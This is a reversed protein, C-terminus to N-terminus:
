KPLWGREDIDEGSGNAKGGNLSAAALEAAAEAASAEAAAHMICDDADASTSSISSPDFSVRPRSSSSSTAGERERIHRLREEASLSASPAANSAEAAAAAAASAAAAAAAAAASAAAGAPLKTVAPTPTPARPALMVINDRHALEDPGHYGLVAEATHQGGHSGSHNSARRNNSNNNNNNGGSGSASGSRGGGGGGAGEGGDGGGDGSTSAGGGSGLGIGGGNGGGGYRAAAVLARLEASSYNVLGRAIEAGDVAAVLLVAEQADFDGEAEVVGAAFLSAGRERVARVAGADLLLRGKVPVSTIWRKRGRSPHPISHFVTGGAAPDGAIVARIAEPRVAHLVATSCGAATAIRAATLKTAMGGTGWQTGAGGTPM